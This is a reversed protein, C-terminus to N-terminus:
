SFIYKSANLTSHSTPVIKFHIVQPKISSKLNKPLVIVTLISNSTQKSDESKSIETSIKKHEHRQNSAM